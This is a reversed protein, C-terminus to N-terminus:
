TLQMRPLLHAQSSTDDSSLSLLGASGVGLPLCLGSFMQVQECPFLVRTNSSAIQREHTKPHKNWWPAEWIHGPQRCKPLRGGTRRSIQSTICSSGSSRWIFVLNMIQTRTPLKISNRLQYFWHIPCLQSSLGEKSGLKTSKETGLTPVSCYSIYLLLSRRSLLSGHSDAVM